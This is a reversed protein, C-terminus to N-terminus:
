SVSAPGARLDMCVESLDGLPQTTNSALLIAGQEREVSLHPFQPVSRPRGDWAACRTLTPALSYVGTALGPAVAVWSSGLAKAGARARVVRGGPGGRLRVARSLRTDESSSEPTGPSRQERREVRRTWWATGGAWGGGAQAMEM